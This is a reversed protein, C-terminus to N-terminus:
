TLKKEASGLIIIDNGIVVPDSIKTFTENLITSDITGNKLIRVIFNGKVGKWLVPRFYDILESLNISVATGNEEKLGNGLHVVSNIKADTSLKDNGPFRLEISAEIKNKCFLCIFYELNALQNKIEKSRCSTKRCHTRGKKYAMYPEKCYRCIIKTSGAIKPKLQRITPSHGFEIKGVQSHM